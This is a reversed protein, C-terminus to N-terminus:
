KSTEMKLEELIKKLEDKCLPCSEYCPMHAKLLEKEERTMWNFHYDKEDTYMPEFSGSPFAISM